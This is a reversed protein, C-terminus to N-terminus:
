KSVVYYLICTVKLLEFKLSDTFNNQSTSSGTLVNGIQTKLMISKASQEGSNEHVHNSLPISSSDMFLNPNNSTFEQISMDPNIQNVRDSEAGLGEYMIIKVTDDDFLNENLDENKQNFSYLLIPSIM